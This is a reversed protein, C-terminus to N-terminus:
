DNYVVGKYDTISKEEGADGSGARLREIMDKLAEILQSAKSRTLWKYSGINFGARPSQLFRDLRDTDPEGADTVWGLKRMLGFIYQNQKYSAKEQGQSKGPRGELSDIVRIGEDLSLKKISDKKTLVQIHAHLLDADMGRENALVHIKRIQAATVAKEKKGM